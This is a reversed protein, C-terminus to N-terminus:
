HLLWLCLSPLMFLLVCVCVYFSVCLCVCELLSRQAFLLAIKAGNHAWYPSAAHWLPSLLAVSLSLSLSLLSCALVHPWAAAAAAADADGGLSAMAPTDEDAQGREGIEEGRERM